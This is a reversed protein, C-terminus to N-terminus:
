RVNNSISKTYLNQLIHDRERQEWSQSVRPYSRLEGYALQLALQIGARKLIETNKSFYHVKGDQLESLGMGLAKRTANGIYGGLSGNNIIGGSLLISKGINWLRSM